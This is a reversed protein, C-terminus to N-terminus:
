AQDRFLDNLSEDTYVPPSQEGGNNVPRDDWRSDDYGRGRGRPATGGAAVILATRFKGMPPHVDGCSRLANQVQQPTYGSELAKKVYNQRIAMFTRRKDLVRGHREHFDIWWRAIKEAASAIAAADLGAPDAAPADPTSSQSPPAASSSRLSDDSGQQDATNTSRKASPEGADSSGADPLGTGSSGAGPFGAGTSSAIQEPVTPAVGGNPGGSGDPDPPPEDVAADEFGDTTMTGDKRRVLFSGDPQQIVVVPKGGAEANQDVWEKVPTESIATGMVLRGDTLRRRELRYYGHARLERLGSQVSDKGDPAQDALWESRVDWGDPMDLLFALLGRAKWSLKSDRITNRPVQVFFSNRRKRLGEGASM